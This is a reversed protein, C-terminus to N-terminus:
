NQPAPQNPADVRITAMPREESETFYYLTWQSPDKVSQRVQYGFHEFGGHFELRVHNTRVVIYRPSLSRLLPPVAPHSPKVLESAGPFRAALTVCASAIQPLDARQQVERMKRSTRFADHFFPSLCALVFATLIGLIVKMARV